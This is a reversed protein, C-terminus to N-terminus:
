EAAIAPGLEGSEERALRAVLRNFLTVGRDHAIPRVPHGPSNEIVKQQAEIM